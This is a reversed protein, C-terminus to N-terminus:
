KMVQIPASYVMNEYITRVYYQGAALNTLDITTSNNPSLNFDTVMQGLQNYVAIQVADNINGANITFLGNGFNPYISFVAATNEAIADELDNDMINIVADSITYGAFFPDDTILLFQIIGQHDGEAIADDVLDVTMTKPLTVDSGAPFEFNVSVGPGAGLDLQEDTAAIITVDYDSSIALNVLMNLGTTGELFYDAVPYSIEVNQIMDNDNIQIEIPDITYGVLMPDTTTISFSISGTHDGEELFDDVIEIPINHPLMADENPEIALTFPMGPGPGLNIEINPTMTIYVMEYPTTFLSINMDLVTEGENYILLPATLTVGQLVDNDSINIIVDDISMAAIVPDATEITFSIVGSHIAEVAYDDFLTIDLLQPITAEDTAEFNLDVTVGPGAGLDIQADPTAHIVVAENPTIALAFSMDIGTAGETYFGTPPDVVNITQLIDDDNILITVDEILITEFAIDDTTINFSIIASHDGEIIYNNIIFVNDDIKLKQM